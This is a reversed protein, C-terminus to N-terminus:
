QEEKRSRDANGEGLAAKVRAKVKADKVTKSVIRIGSLVPAPLGITGSIAMDMAALIVSGTNSTNVVGPPVTLVDKSVENLTRIQEAGKKGFLFELKGSKDLQNIARDLQAPSVIPNGLQDRAVNKTAEQKIYNIVGGQLERYAQKGEEGETQLLRRVQQLSDLSTSPDIVSRRLVDELAIARDTTGRKTGILNKVIGINEYDKAYKARAARARAYVQGGATETSKDIINKLDVAFSINTPEQNTSRNISRRLLEINKLSAPQAILNGSADEALVGLKIAKARAVKLIPAVEAEPTNETLFDALGSIEVPDEMEGAKEAEKYLARIKTKDRAARSRLAGTVSIGITRLDPAEAGTLDIFSDMNQILQMNQQAFRQRLPEGLEPEKATEREFRQQEFQRTKQGETLAIPVPLEEAAAQRLTAVDVAAAGASSPTGPTPAAAEPRRVIDAARGAAQATQAAVAPVTARAQQVAGQALAQPVATVPVPALKAAEAVEGVTQLAQQALETRPQYTYRQLGEMARQAMLNGGVSTGYTGNRISELLGAVGGAGYGLVGTTAGTLGTAALEIPATIAQPISQGIFQRQPQVPAPAPAAPGASDAIAMAQEEPTMVPAAAVASVGYKAQIAKKTAENANVYNPDQASYREFIARKTAANAGTYNPDTLISRLDAM